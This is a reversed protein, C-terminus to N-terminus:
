AYWFGDARKEVREWAEAVEPAILRVWGLLLDDAMSHANEKDGVDIADLAAIVEAKSESTM